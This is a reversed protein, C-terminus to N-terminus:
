CKTGNQSLFQHSSSRQIPHESELHLSVAFNENIKNDISKEGAMEEEWTVAVLVAAVAVDEEGVGGLVECEDVDKRDTQRGHKESMKRM